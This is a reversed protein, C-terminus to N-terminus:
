SYMSSSPVAENARSAGLAALRRQTERAERESPASEGVAERASKTTPLPARCTPCTHKKRLWEHACEEHFSHGCPLRVAMTSAIMEQLCVACTTRHDRSSAHCRLRAEGRSAASEVAERLAAGDKPSLMLSPLTVDDGVQKTDSMSFPWVAETQVVICGLAGAAQARRVKEVFSVGGRWMLVIRGRVEEANELAVRGDLPSATVLEAAIGANLESLLTGFTSGTGKCEMILVENSSVGSSSASFSATCSCTSGSAVSMVRLLAHPEIRVLPLEALVDENTPESSAGGILEEVLEQPVITQALSLALEEIGSPARLSGGCHSCEARASTAPVTSGCEECRLLAVAQRAQSAYAPGWEAM